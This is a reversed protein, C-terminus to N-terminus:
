DHLFTGNTTRLDELWWNGQHYALRAHHASIAPDNLPLDCTPDRGLLVEPTTFTRAPEDGVAVTLPQPARIGHLEGQHRLERWLAWLLWGLFGYLALFLVVRLALLVEGSM